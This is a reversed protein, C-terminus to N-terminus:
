DSIKFIGSYNKGGGIRYHVPKV